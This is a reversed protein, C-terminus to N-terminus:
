LYPTGETETLKKANSQSVGEVEAGLEERDCAHTIAALEDEGFSFSLGAHEWIEARDWSM